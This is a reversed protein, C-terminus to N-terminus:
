LFGDWLFGPLFIRRNSVLERGFFSLFFSTLLFEDCDGQLGESFEWSHDMFGDFRGRSWGM